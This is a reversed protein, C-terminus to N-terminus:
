PWKIAYPCASCILLENFILRGSPSIALTARICVLFLTAIVAAADAKMSKDRM